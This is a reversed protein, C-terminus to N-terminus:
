QNARTGLAAEIKELRTRLDASEQKLTTNETELKQVENLLMPTLDQYKVTEPQGAANFVALEPFVAAVEEAILGYQVPKEGNAYPQRYRFTVPRLARLRASADGMDNIDEKYRASSSVTGLQGTSDIVVPIADNAGTTKGRIGAIFARTQAASEGIRITAAEAAVGSNGIDINFTGNTLSSGAGDGLATNFPAINNVLANHGVATNGGGGINSSLAGAGVATNFLSASSLLLAQFGVATNSAGTTNAALASRGFATNGSVTSVRLADAGFATNDDGITNTFLAHDGSATNTNGTLNNELASKGTATNSSGGTNKRLANVGLAANLQGVDNTGLANTGVAANQSGTTNSALASVGVATNFSSATTVSLTLRGVAVNDNGTLNAALASSGVATNRGGGTVSGLAGNGLGTDDTGTILSLPGAGTGAFFNTVGGNTHLLTGGSGVIAGAIASTTPLFLNGSLTVSNTTFNAGADRKVLSNTTNQDTAGNARIAGAAVSAASVGGVTGVVTAGQTGTVNGSLAGTFNVANTANTATTANGTLNATITGAAFNGSADRQVLSNPTNGTAVGGTGTSVLAEIELEASYGTGPGEKSGFTIRALPDSTQLAFGFDNGGVGLAAILAATLDVTVYHKALLQAKPITALVTPNVGPAAVTAAPKETWAANVAHVTIDAPKTSGIVYLQLTASTVNGPTIAAPVVNPDSLNFRIFATQKANVAVSTGKGAAVTITNTATSAADEAVSVTLGHAPQTALALLSAAALTLIQTQTKRTKTTM